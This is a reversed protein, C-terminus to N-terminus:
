ALAFLILHAYAFLLSIVLLLPLRWWWNRRRLLLRGGFWLAFPTLLLWVSCDALSYRLADAYHFVLYERGEMSRYAVAMHIQSAEFFAYLTWAAWIQLGYLAFRRTRPSM